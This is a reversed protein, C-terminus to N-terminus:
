CDIKELLKTYRKSKKQESQETKITSCYLKKYTSQYLSNNLLNYQQLARYFKELEVTAWDPSERWNEINVQKFSYYDKMMSAYLVKVLMNEYLTKYTSLYLQNHSLGYQQLTHYAKELEKTGFGYQSTWGQTHDADPALENADYNSIAQEYLIRIIMDDFEQPHAIWIMIQKLADRFAFTMNKEEEDSFTKSMFSVNNSDCFLYEFAGNNKNIVCCVEHNISEIGLSFGCCYNSLTQLNHLLAIFRDLFKPHENTGIILLAYEALKELAITTNERLALRKQVGQLISHTVPNYEIVLTHSIYDLSKAPICEPRCKLQSQLFTRTITKNKPCGSKTFAAYQKESTMNNYIIDFDSRPSLVLDMIYVCNRFAHIWCDEKEQHLAEIQYIPAGQNEFNPDYAVLKNHRNKLMWPGLLNNSQQTQQQVPPTTQPTVSPKLGAIGKLAVALNDLRDGSINAFSIAGLLILKKSLKM